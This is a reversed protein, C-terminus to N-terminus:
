IRLGKLRLFNKIVSWVNIRRRGFRNLQRFLFFGIPYIHVISMKLVEQEIEIARLHDFKKTKDILPQLYIATVISLCERYDQVDEISKRAQMLQGISLRGAGKPIAVQRNNLMVFDPIQYDELKKEPYLFFEITQYLASEVALSKSEAIGTAETDFLIAFLQVWDDDKWEHVIRQFKEVNIEELREPGTLKFKGKTTRTTVSRM